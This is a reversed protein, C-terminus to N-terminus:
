RENTPQSQKKDSIGALPNIPPFNKIPVMNQFRVGYKTQAKPRSSRLSLVVGRSLTVETGTCQVMHRILSKSPQISHTVQDTRIIDSKNHSSERSTTRSCKNKVPASSDVASLLQSERTEWNGNLNDIMTENEIVENSIHQKQLFRRTGANAKERNCPKDVFRGVVIPPTDDQREKVRNSLFDESLTRGKRIQTRASRRNPKKNKTKIAESKQESVKLSGINKIRENHRSIWHSSQRVRMQRTLLDKKKKKNLPSVSNSESRIDKDKKRQNSVQRM